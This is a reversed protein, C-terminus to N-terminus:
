FRLTEGVKGLTVKSGFQKRFTDVHSTCHCLYISDIIPDLEISRENSFRFGHLGGIITLKSKESIELEERDSLFKNLGPHCCGCMLIYGNESKIYCAHEYIGGYDSSRHSNTIFVGEQISDLEQANEIVHLNHKSLNTGKFSARKTWDEHILIPVNANDQLIASIGNTHDYHNHSLIIGDIQSPSVGYQDMNHQLPSPKTGTDFLIKTQEFEVLAAFGYSLIYNEVPSQLDDVLITIKIKSM